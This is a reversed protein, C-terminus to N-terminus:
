SDSNISIAYNCYDAKAQEYEKYLEKQGCSLSKIFLNETRAINLKLVNLNRAQEERIVSSIEKIISKIKEDVYKKKQM